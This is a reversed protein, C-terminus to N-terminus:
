FFHSQPFGSTRRGQEVMPKEKLSAEWQRKAEIEEYDCQSKKDWGNTVAGTPVMLGGSHIAYCIDIPEGRENTKEHFLKIFADKCVEGGNLSLVGELSTEEDTRGRLSEFEESITNARVAETIIRVLSGVTDVTYAGFAEGNLYLIKRESETGNTDRYVHKYKTCVNINSDGFVLVKNNDKSVITVM